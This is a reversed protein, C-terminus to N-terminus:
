FTTEKLLQTTFIFKEELTLGVVQYNKKIKKFYSNCLIKFPRKYFNM